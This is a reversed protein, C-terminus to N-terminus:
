KPQEVRKAIMADTEAQRRADEAKADADLKEVDMGVAQGLAKYAERQQVRAAEQQKQNARIAALSEEVSRDAPWSEFYTVTPPPPKAKDAVDIYFMTIITATPICAALLLLPRSGEGGRLFGILDSFGGKISADQFFSM